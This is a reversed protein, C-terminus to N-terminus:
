LVPRRDPVAEVGLGGVLAPVVLLQGTDEPSAVIRHQGPLQAPHDVLEDGRHVGPLAPNPATVAEALPPGPQTRVLSAKAVTKCVTGKPWEPVSGPAAYSILRRNRM